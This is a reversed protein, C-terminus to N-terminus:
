EDESQNSVADVAGAAVPPIAAKVNRAGMGVAPLVRGAQREAIGIATSGIKGGLVGGGRGVEEAKMLTKIDSNAALLNSLRENFERAEPVADAILKNMRAYVARYAPKVEDTVATTGGWNVRNGIQQKIKNLELPSVDKGLGEKLSKQLNGLQTLASDKEADTMARNNIIGVVEEHLPADIADAVPIRAPSQALTKELRPALEEIRQTVAKFRGGAAQAAETPSKGARLADKYAELNGTSVHAIDEDVLARAPNGYTVDRTQAGLSQNIASRGIKTKPLEAAIEFPASLLATSAGVEGSEKLNEKSLPNDLGLAQGASNGAAAGAGTAGARSLLRLVYGWGAGFAGEPVLAAGAEGGMAAALMKINRKSGEAYEDRVQQVKEPSGTITIGAAGEGASVATADPADIVKLSPDIQRAKALHEGAVEHISGDSAQFLVRGPLNKFQDSAQQAAYNSKSADAETLPASPTGTRFSSDAALSPGVVAGPPLGEVQIPPGVIAGPPLGQIQDQDPM